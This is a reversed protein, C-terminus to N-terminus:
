RAGLCCGGSRSPGCTTSRCTPTRPTTSSGACWVVDFTGLRRVDEPDHLDGQVYTVHSGSRRHEEEFEPTPDMGDFLVVRTAGAREARFAVHGNVGWMGGLDLFSAGPALRDVLRDRNEWRDIAPGRRGNARGLTLWAEALLQRMRSTLSRGPMVGLLNACRTGFVDDLMPETLRGTFTNQQSPHYCGLLVRGDPLEHEAGHGFKPRPRAGLRDRRLAADWAFGGLCVIM